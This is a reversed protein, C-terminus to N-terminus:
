SKLLPQLKDKLGELAKLIEILETKRLTVYSTGAEGSRNYTLGSTGSQISTTAVM